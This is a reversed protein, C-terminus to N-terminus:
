LSCRHGATPAPRRNGQIEERLEQLSQSANQWDIDWNGTFPFQCFSSRQNSVLTLIVSGDTVIGTQRVKAGNFRTFQSIESVLRIIFHENELKKDLLAELLREFTTELNVLKETTM